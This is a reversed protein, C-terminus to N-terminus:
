GRTPNRHMTSFAGADKLVRCMLLKRRCWTLAPSAATKSM